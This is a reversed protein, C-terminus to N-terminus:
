FTIEAPRALELVGISGLCTVLESLEFLGYGNIYKFVREVDTVM